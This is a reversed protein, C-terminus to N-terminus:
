RWRTENEIIEQQIQILANNCWTMNKDESVMLNKKQRIERTFPALDKGAIKQKEKPNPHIGWDNEKIAIAVAEKYIEM